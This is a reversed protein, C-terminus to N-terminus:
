FVVSRAVRHVGYSGLPLYLHDGNPVLKSVYGVTRAANVIVPALPDAVDLVLVGYPGTSALYAADGEVDLLDFHYGHLSPRADGVVSGREDVTVKHLLTYPQRSEATEGRVGWWPYKHTTMWITRDRFVARNVQDGVPMIDALVARDGEVRLTNFSNRRRGFDDWQYDVTFLTLGDDSADVLWGPVNLSPLLVPHDPDSVDVRDVYARVHYLLSEGEGTTAQEVHGSYLVDGHTVKNVFPYDNMPVTGEAIRPNEPDRMDIIRLESEWDRRGTEDERIRRVTFPLLQNRLPLGAYPNWYRWYWSVGGQYLPDVQYNGQTYIRELASALELYGVLRPHEPDTFDASRITQGVHVEYGIMHVVDGDRYCVPTGGFPLDLTALAPTDDDKTFPLVEFRLGGGFDPAVLQVALGGIDFVEYITRQLHVASTAVPADRDTADIAEVHENSVALIRDGVPFARQVRGFTSVRGREELADGVWDVLQVGNFHEYANAANRYSYQLPVLILELEPVVRLAKYDNNAVSYSYGRGLPTTSDHALRSPDAADYLSLQVKCGNTRWIGDARDLYWQQQSGLALVRDGSVVLHTVQQDIELSSAEYPDAPDALDFAHLLNVGRYRQYGRRDQYAEWHTTMTYVREGAYRSAYLASSRGTGDDGDYVKVGALRRLEDPFSTDITFLWGNGGYRCNFGYGSVNWGYSYRSCWAHESAIVRLTHDYWDLKFKDQITGPVYVTGRKRMAGTPDAIDVYTVLTEQEHEPDTLYYNPDWASVFIAHPAVHILTSTGAFTIRDIERIDGPDAINLSVVWTRDEWDATNYRWFDPRRKSVTYLVDGVLRTDTIEGDVLQRGLEEPATPDSVDVILIQSGHFGLPDADPDYQWYVFYDSMVVYARGDRLYMEVPVAQFPLRGVVRLHDPDSADIVVLGRNRNLVYVLDGDHKFIDAEVIERSADPEAEPEPAPGQEGPAPDAGAGASLGDGDDMDMEGRANAGYGAQQGTTTGASLLERENASVFESTGTAPFIAPDLGPSAGHSPPPQAPPRPAQPEPDGPGPEDGPLPDGQPVPEGASTRGADGCSSATLVVSLLLVFLNPDLRRM